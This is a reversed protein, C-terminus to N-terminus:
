GKVTKTKIEKVEKPKTEKSKVEEKPKAEKPKAEKKVEKKKEFPSKPKTEKKEEKPEFKKTEPKKTKGRDLAMRRKKDDLNLKTIILNSPELNVAVESGDVKKVNIGDIHVKSTSLNVMTIEGRFGKSKGRIILVEDGKRVPFARRQFQRRLDVSLHASVFKRRVGLPANYRYKRQKRPQKSSIWSKSWEKM